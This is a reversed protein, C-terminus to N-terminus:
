QEGNCATAVVLAVRRGGRRGRHSEHGIHVELVHVAIELAVGEAANRHAATLVGGDAGHVRLQGRRPEKVLVVEGEAGRQLVGVPAADPVHRQGAVVGVIRLRHVHVADGGDQMLILGAAHAEEECGAIVIGVLREVIVLGAFVVEESRVALLLLHESGAVRGAPRRVRRHRAGILQLLEAVLAEQGPQALEAEQRIGGVQQPFRGEAAM